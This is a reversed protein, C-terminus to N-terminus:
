QRHKYIKDNAVLHFHTAFLIALAFSHQESLLMVLKNKQNIPITKFTKSTIMGALVVSNNNKHDHDVPISTVREARLTAVTCGQRGAKGSTTLEVTMDMSKQLVADMRIVGEALTKYGLIARSKYKKRKQLLILLRDPNPCSFQQLNPNNHNVSRNM